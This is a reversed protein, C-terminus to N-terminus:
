LTHGFAIGVYPVAHGVLEDCHAGTCRGHAVIWGVGAHPRVSFGGPLTILAGVEANAWLAVTKTTNDCFFLCLETYRGGSAGAGVTLVARRNGLRLRPMLSAQVGDLSAGLGVGIELMPLVPQTHEVGIEGTPTFLGVTLSLRSRMSPETENRVAQPDAHAMAPALAIGVMVMRKMM